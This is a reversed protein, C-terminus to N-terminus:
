SLSPCSHDQISNRRHTYENEITSRLEAFAVTIWAAIGILILAALARRTM